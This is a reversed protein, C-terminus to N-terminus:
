EEDNELCSEKLAQVLPGYSPIDMKLTIREPFPRDFSGVMTIKGSDFNGHHSRIFNCKISEISDFLAVFTPQAKNGKIDWDEKEFLKMRDMQLVLIGSFVMQFGDNPDDLKARSAFHVTAM